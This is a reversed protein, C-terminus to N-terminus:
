DRLGMWEAGPSGPPKDRGRDGKDVDTKKVPAIVPAEM